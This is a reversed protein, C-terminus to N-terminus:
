EVGNSMGQVGELCGTYRQKGPAQFNGRLLDIEEIWVKL